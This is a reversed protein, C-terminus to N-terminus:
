LVYAIALMSSKFEMAVELEADLLTGFGDASRLVEVIAEIPDVVLACVENLLTEVVAVIPDSGRGGDRVALIVVVLVLGLAFFDELLCLLVCVFAAAGGVDGVEVEVM